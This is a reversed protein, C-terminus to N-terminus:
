LRELRLGTAPPALAPRSRAARRRASNQAATGGSASQVGQGVLRVPLTLQRTFTTVRCSVSGTRWFSVGVPTGGFRGKCRRRRGGLHNNPNQRGPFPASRLLGCALDLSRTGM